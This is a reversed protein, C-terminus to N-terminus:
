RAWNGATVSCVATGVALGRRERGPCRTDARARPWCPCSQSRQRVDLLGSGHRKDCLRTGRRLFRLKPVEIDLAVAEPNSRIIKSSGCGIDLREPVDGAFENVIRFRTRQWYRQPLVLSEYARADYDASSFSNRMTWLRLLPALWFLLVILSSGWLPWRHWRPGRRKVYHFYFGLGIFFVSLPFFYIRYAALSAALGGSLVGAGAFVLALM